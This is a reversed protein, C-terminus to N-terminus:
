RWKIRTIALGDGIPILYSYYEDSFIEDIFSNMNRKITMNRKVVIEGFTIGRAYINDSIIISGSKFLRKALLFLEKYHSKAGDLFLLDIGEKRSKIYEAADSYVTNIDMGDLLEKAMKYNEEKREVTTIKASPFMKRFISASFGYGTGIELINDAKLHSLYFLLFDLVDDEIIPINDRISVQKINNVYDDIVINYNSVRSIM